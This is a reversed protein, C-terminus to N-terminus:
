FRGFVNNMEDRAVTNLLFNRGLSGPTDQENGPKSPAPQTPFRSWIYDVTRTMGAM